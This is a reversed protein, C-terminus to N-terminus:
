NGSFHPSLPPVTIAIRFTVFLKVNILLFTVANDSTFKVMSFAIYKAYNAELPAPLDVSNRM